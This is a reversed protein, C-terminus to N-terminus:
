DKKKLIMEMKESFFFDCMLYVPIRELTPTMVSFKSMYFITGTFDVCLNTVVEMFVKM